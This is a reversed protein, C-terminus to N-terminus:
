QAPLNALRNAAEPTGSKAYLRRAENLNRPVGRGEEYMLGLRFAAVEGGPLNAAKAYWQAAKAQNGGSALVGRGTEYMVGLNFMGRVYGLDAAQQFWHLADSDSKTGGLGQAYMSGLLVMAQPNGANAAKTFTDRAAAENHNALQNKGDRLLQDADAIQPPPHKIPAPPPELPAQPVTAPRPKVTPQITSVPEQNLADVPHDNRVQNPVSVAPKAPPSVQTGANNAPVTPPQPSTNVSVRPKSESHFAFYGGVACLGVIAVGAVAWPAARSKSKLPLAPAPPVSVPQPVPSPSSPTALSTRVGPQGQLSVKIPAPAPGSPRPEVSTLGQAIPEFVTAQRSVFPKPPAFPKPPPLSTRAVPPDIVSLPATNIADALASMVANCSQYRNAPDKEMCKLVVAELTPSLGPNRDSMPPPVGRVHGEKVSFETADDSSFPPVGTLLTYLVVGFSYIDSRWDVANPRLIQEPSMYDPTGVTLGASTLRREAGMAIAIGFDTLMARGTDEILINSPKVDRHVLQPQQNHAYELASLVDSSVAEVEPLPLPGSQQELRAELSQGSVFQMVLYSHGEIQLFDVAPVINPHRLRAQRKGESLFREELQPDGSFKPLLFKIAARTGLHVHTAEWVEAMGGAGVKRELIYQGVTRGMGQGKTTKMEALSPGPIPTIPTPGRGAQPNANMRPPGGGTNRLYVLKEAIDFALTNVLTSFEPADSKLKVPIRRPGDEKWFAVRKHNDLPSPYFEGESLPLCEILFLRSFDPAAWQEVFAQLEQRPWSRDAYNPSGIALFLASKRVATLLEPLHYNAGTARSDVYVKLADANRVRQRVASELQQVFQPIWGGRGDAAVDDAHAYSVFLDYDFGPTIAM